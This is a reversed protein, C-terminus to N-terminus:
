RRLHYALVGSGVQVVGGDGMGRGRESATVCESERESMESKNNIQHTQKDNSSHFLLQERGWESHPRKIVKAQLM